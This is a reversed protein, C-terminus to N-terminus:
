NCRLVKFPLWQGDPATVLVHKGLAISIAELQFIEHTRQGNREFVFNWGLPHSVIVGARDPENPWFRRVTAQRPNSEYLLSDIVGDANLPLRLLYARVPSGNPYNPTKALELRVTKWSM